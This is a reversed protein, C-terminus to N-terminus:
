DKLDDVANQVKHKAKKAACEMKGNVMECTEDKIKRGAKKMEVKADHAVEKADQKMNEGSSGEALAPLTAGAILGILALKVLTM